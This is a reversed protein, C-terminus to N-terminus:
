KTIIILLVIIISEIIKPVASSLGFVRYEVYDWFKGHFLAYKFGPYVIVEPSVYDLGKGRFKDLASDFFLKAIMLLNLVDLPRKTINWVLFAFSAHLLGNLGHRVTKQRGTEGGKKIWRYNVYAFVIAVPAYLLAIFNTAQM